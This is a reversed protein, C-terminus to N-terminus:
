FITIFIVLIQMVFYVSNFKTLSWQSLLWNQPAWARQVCSPPSCAFKIEVQDLTFPLTSWLEGTDVNKPPIICDKWTSLIKFLHEFNMNDWCKVKM